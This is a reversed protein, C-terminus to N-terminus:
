KTTDRSNTTHAFSQNFLDLTYDEKKELARYIDQEVSGKTCLFYYFCTKTQGIRHIRKLMQMHDEGQTTPDFVIMRNANQLNLGKAAAQHQCLVVSNDCEVYAKLDREKGNVTAVPKGIRECLAKLKDYDRQFSYFIVFREESSELLDEVVKLKHDNYSGCLERAHILRSLPTEGIMEKDGVDVIFKAMFESYQKTNPVEITQMVQEPLNIVDETRLFHCGIEHLKSKLKDINKYGIILQIPFNFRELPMERTIVFRDYFVSKPVKWGLLRCQAILQEYKGGIPTGSLLVVGDFQMRLVALTRKAREHKLMSSEDFIVSMGQLSTIQPRRWIRDYNIVGVSKDKYNIFPDINKNKTLDFVKVDYYKGMHECWDAVKSLQCVILNRQSGFSMLKESGTYTKGLGMSHYFACRRYKSVAELADKQHEMLNIKQTSM